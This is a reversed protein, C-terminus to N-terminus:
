NKKSSPVAKTGAAADVGFDWVFLNMGDPLIEALAYEGPPLPESLTFRYVTPAVEWRQISITARNEEMQEGFLSKISELQRKNGKVTAQVLEVEPGSEGPRSSKVIPTTRDPDPPAERLYFEAQSTLVRIKARPGPIQINQKSPVIPIPSLVQKLFQKKDRKIESGVQELPTVSKGEVVFMGEGPPLFVGPAVQLSADVDMVTEIKRAQEQARIKNAQADEEAKEAADAKATAEWDVMAAPLEEWDGRESSFYRVREGTRQYDRVVQFSGDKLVLKKGRPLVPVEPSSEKAPGQKTATGPEQPSELDKQSQGYSGFAVGLFGVACCVLLLTKSSGM